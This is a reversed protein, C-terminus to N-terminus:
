PVREYMFGEWDWQGYLYSDYGPIRMSASAPIEAQQLAWFSGKTPGMFRPVTPVSMLCAMWPSFMGSRAMSRVSSLHELTRWYLFLGGGLLVLLIGIICPILMKKKM